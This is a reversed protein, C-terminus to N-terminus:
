MSVVQTSHSLAGREIMRSLSGTRRQLHFQMDLALVHAFTHYSVRRGSAQLWMATCGEACDGECGQSLSLGTAKRPQEGHQVHLHSHLLMHM